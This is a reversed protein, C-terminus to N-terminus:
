SAEYACELWRGALWVLHSSKFGDAQDERMERIRILSSSKGGLIEDRAQQVVLRRATQVAEHYNPISTRRIHFFWLFRTNTEQLEYIVPVGPLRKVWYGTNSDQVEVVYRVPLMM